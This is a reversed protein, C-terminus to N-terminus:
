AGSEALHCLQQQLQDRVWRPESVRVEAKLPGDVAGLIEPWIQLLEDVEWSLPVERWEGTLPQQRVWGELQLIIEEWTNGVPTQPYAEALYTWIASAVGPEAQLAVQGDVLRLCPDGSAPYVVFPSGDPEGLRLTLGLTELGIRAALNIEAIM